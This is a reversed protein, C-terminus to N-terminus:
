SLRELVFNLASDKTKMEKCYLDYIFYATNNDLLGLSLNNNSQFDNVASKVKNDFYGDTRVEYGLLNLMQCINPLQYIDVDDYELDDDLYPFFCKETMTIENTPEYGNKHLSKYERDDLNYYYWNGLTIHVFYNDTIEIDQQYIGKGYTKEGVVSSDLQQNMVSTFIEAASATNKNVLISIDYDIEVEDKSAYYVEKKFELGSKNIFYGELAFLPNDSDIFIDLVSLCNLISGGGNDRLDIVLSDIGKLKDLENNVLEALPFSTDFSSIKLYGVNDYIESSVLYDLEYIGTKIDIKVQEGQRLVVTSMNSSPAVDLLVNVEKLSLSSILTSNVSIIKDGVRLGAKYSPSDFVVNTIVYYNEIFEITIGYYVKYIYNSSEIDGVSSSSYTFKDDLSEFMGKIAGDILQQSTPNSYHYDLLLNYLSDFLEREKNSNSCGCLLFILVLSILIKKM